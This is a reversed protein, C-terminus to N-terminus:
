LNDNNDGDMALLEKIVISQIDIHELDDNIVDVSVDYQVKDGLEYEIIKFERVDIAKAFFLEGDIVVGQEKIAYIEGGDIDFDFSFNEDCEIFFHHIYNLNSVTYNDLSFNTNVPKKNFRFTISKTGITYFDIYSRESFGLLDFKTPREKIQYKTVEGFQKVLVKNRGALIIYDNEDKIENHTDMKIMNTINQDKDIMFNYINKNQEGPILLTNYDHNYPSSKIIKGPNTTLSYNFIINDGQVSTANFISAIRSAQNVAITGLDIHMVNNQIVFDYSGNQFFITKGLSTTSLEQTTKEQYFDVTRELEDLHTDIFCSLLEYENVALEFFLKYLLTLDRYISNIMANFSKVDITEGPIAENVSLYALGTDITELLYSVKEDTPYIGKEIFSQIIRAKYYKMKELMDKYM